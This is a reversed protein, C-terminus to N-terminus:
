GKICIVQRLKHIPEILEKQASIVDEINKYAGPTEDLVSSDVRCEIGATAERHDKLTFTQKAATRSMARGAGHSCSMFSEPNGLGQVIYTPTGMSGPVVAVQGKRASVAGKRTVLVNHKFHNEKAVYNHHCDIEFTREFKPVMKSKRLAKEVSAAMLERNTKAYTQCWMVADLYYNFDDTGEPFYSLDTSPLTIFYQKMLVSARRIFYMGIKNGVGRSGSHLLIWVKDEEDIAIELFHNGSGLTGLQHAPDKHSVQPSNNVISRYHGELGMWAIEIEPPTDPWDKSGWNQDLGHPVFSEIISRLQALDKPLMGSDMTTRVATVGCGLDVGCFAPSIAGQTAIVSGVTCGKGPHTDSMVAVHKYVFPLDAVLQIQKRAAEEVPINVTWSKIPVRCGTTLEINDLRYTQIM